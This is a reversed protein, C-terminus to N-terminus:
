PIDWEYTDYMVARAGFGEKFQVLGHNLVSGGAETSIGFDLFLMQPHKECLIFDYIAEAVGLERGREDTAIYQPHIVQPTYYVTLGGTLQGDLYASYHVINDPFRSQLLKIEAITHVPHTNHRAKLNTELMPWFDELNGGREVTVGHEKARLLARRHNRRWSHAQNLPLVSSTRRSTLRAKCAWFLPYLDEEAPLLHYIHPTPKYVVHRFAATKLYKNLAAFLEIVMGATSQRDMLLGGYTLGDHSCLTDGVAHAPLLACLRGDAFFMLSHDTFREAHYDMYNRCFLFTANKAKAVFADWQQRQEPSYRVIDVKM